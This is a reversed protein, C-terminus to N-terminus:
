KVKFYKEWMRASKATTYAMEEATADGMLYQRMIEGDVATQRDHIPYFNEMLFCAYKQFRHEGVLRFEASISDVAVSYRDKISQVIDGRENKHAFVITSCIDSNRNHETSGHSDTSGVIPHVRGQRYEDYYLATQFGNHEYYNEGGLVEFADFPHKALMYKTFPEPIQWMDALWYPHAFVGLGGAQRIKEFAWVCVAFWRSNVNEPCGGECDKLSKEIEDLEANYQEAPVIDPCDVTEDFRRKELAGDTERYNASSELLGNVSFLGGANVIHVDTQPLHVEEGPLINLPIETDAYANMAELSPFYRGHDTVVIFDYGKMRYNACVVAPAERGDSRCTHMHLDGRLPIRCAMDDALAYLSLQLLRSDDKFVRVILETEADATYTFRLCGDNDPSLDYETRNWATFDQRPSGSDVRMVAVRCHDPFAAHAGQPKITIETPDNVPFVMPYIDYNYLVQKMKM